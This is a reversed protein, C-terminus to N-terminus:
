CYPFVNEKHFFFINKLFLLLITYFMDPINLFQCVDGILLIMVVSYDKPM